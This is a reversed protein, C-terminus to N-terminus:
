FSYRVGGGFSNEDLFRGEVYGSWQPTMDFGWGLYVGANKDAGDGPTGGNNSISTFDVHVDSYKVGLYPMFRDFKGQAQVGFSWERYNIDNGSSAVGSWPGSHNDHWLYNAIGALNWTGAEYLIAGLGFGFTQETTGSFKTQSGNVDPLDVYELDGTGIRLSVEVNRSLGYAARGLFYSAEARRKNTSSNSVEMDRKDYATELELSFRGMAPDVPGIPTASAAQLALVASAIITLFRRM